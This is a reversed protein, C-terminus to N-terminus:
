ARRGHAQDPYLELGLERSIVEASLTKGTGSEGAFLASIGRGRSSRGGIQWEDFFKGAM